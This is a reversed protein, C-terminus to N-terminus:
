YYFGYGTCPWDFSINEPESVANGDADFWQIEWQLEYINGLKFDGLILFACIADGGIDALVTENTEQLQEESLTYLEAETGNVSASTVAFTVTDDYGAEPRFFFGVADTWFGLFDWSITYTPEGISATRTGADWQVEYGFYEALYRVPAYTRDNVIVAATDMEIEQQSTEDIGTSDKYSYRSCATTSGIPFLLSNVVSSSVGDEWVTDVVRSFAAIRAEADWEVELGMADAVPRLPVLTRGNEDIFPKADTWVVPEDFVTVNIDDGAAFAACPLVLAIALLLVITRLLSKRM